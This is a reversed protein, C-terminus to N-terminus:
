YEAFLKDNWLHLGDVRRFHRDFSALDRVGAVYASALHIADQSGLNFQVMLAVARQRVVANIGVEVKNVQSLMGDLAAVHSLVYRRRVAPDDAWRDLQYQDRYAEALIARFDERCITHVFEPWLISSVYVTTNIRRQINALFQV